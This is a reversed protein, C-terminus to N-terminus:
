PQYAAQPTAPLRSSSHSALPKPQPQCAAQPPRFHWSAPLTPDRSRARQLSERMRHPPTAGCARGARLPPPASGGCTPDRQRRVAVAERLMGDEQASWARKLFVPKVGSGGAEASGEGGGRATSAVGGAAGVGVAGAMRCGVDGAMRGVASMARMGHMADRVSL